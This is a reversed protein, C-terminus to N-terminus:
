NEFKWEYVIDDNNLLKGGISQYLNVASINSKNTILFCKRIGQVKCDEFIKNMISKGLGKRKYPDSVDISHMYFMPESYFTDLIYGFAFGAIIEEDLAIYAYNKANNLFDMLQQDCRKEGLFLESAKRLVCTDDINLRKIEIM